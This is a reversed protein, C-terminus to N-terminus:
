ITQRRSILVLCGFSPDTQRLALRFVVRLMLATTIALASYRPRGGRPARGEVGCDRSGHWVTLSGRQRLAIDYAALEESEAAAEPHSSPTKRESRIASRTGLDPVPEGAACPGPRASDTGNNLPLAGIKV